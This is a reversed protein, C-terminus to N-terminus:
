VRDCCKLMDIPLVSRRPVRLLGPRHPEQAHEGGGAACLLGMGPREDAPRHDAAVARQRAPPRQPGPPTTVMHPPRASAQDRERCRGSAGRRQPGRRRCVYTWQGVVSVVQTAGVFWSQFFRCGSPQIFFVLKGSLPTDM